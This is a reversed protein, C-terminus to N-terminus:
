KSQEEECKKVCDQHIKWQDSLFQNLFLHNPTTKWFLSMLIIYIIDNEGINREFKLISNSNGERISLWCTPSYIIERLSFLAM